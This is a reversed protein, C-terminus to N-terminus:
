SAQGRSPYHSLWEYASAVDSFLAVTSRSPYRLVQQMSLHDHYDRSYVWAVYLVGYDALREFNHRVTEPAAARWDGLLQSHDSLMKRCPREMLCAFIAQAHQAVSPGDHQGLWQCYLWQNAADYCVRLTPTDLLCHLSHGTSEYM